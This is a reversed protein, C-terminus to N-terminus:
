IICCGIDNEIGVSEVKRCIVIESELVRKMDSEVLRLREGYRGGRGVRDVSRRKM